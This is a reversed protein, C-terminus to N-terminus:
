VPYTSIPIRWGLVNPTDTAALNQYDGVIGPCSQFWYLARKDPGKQEGDHGAGVIM